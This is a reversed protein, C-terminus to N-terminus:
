FTDDQSRNTELMIVDSDHHNGRGDSSVSMSSEDSSGTMLDVLPYDDVDENEEDNDDDHDDCCDDDEDDDESNTGSVMAEGASEKILQFKPSDQISVAAVAVSASGRRTTATSSNTRRFSAASSSSVNGSTATTCLSSSRPRLIKPSAIAVVNELKQIPPAVASVDDVVTQCNSRQKKPDPSSARIPLEAWDELPKITRGSAASSATSSSSSSSSSSATSVSKSRRRGAGLAANAVPPPTTNISRMVKHRTFVPSSGESYQRLISTASASQSLPNAGNNGFSPRKKAAAATSTMQPSWKDAVNSRFSGARRVIRSALAEASEDDNIELVWSVSESKEVVGKVVPTSPPSVTIARGGSADADTDVSGIASSTSVNNGFSKNAISTNSTTNLDSASSNEQGYMSAKAANLYDAHDHYHRSLETLTVSFKESNQMLKFQLQENHLTVSKRNNIEHGYCQEVHKMRFRLDRCSFNLCVLRCVNIITRMIIFFDGDSM